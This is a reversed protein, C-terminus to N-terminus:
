LIWSSLARLAELHACPRAPPHCLRRPEVEEGDGWVERGDPHDSNHGKIIFWYNILYVIKRFETLWELVSGFVFVM